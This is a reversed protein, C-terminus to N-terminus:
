ANNTIYEVIFVYIKSFQKDLQHTIDNLPKIWLISFKFYTFLLNLKFIKYYLSSSGYGIYIHTYIYIYIYIYIQNLNLRTILDLDLKETDLMIRTLNPICFNEYNKIHYITISYTIDNEISRNNVGNKNAGIM